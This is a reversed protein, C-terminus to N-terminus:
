KGFWALKNHLQTVSGVVILAPSVAQEAMNSLENLKGQFVRQEPRTGNEIIACSMEPDLGHTILKDMIHSSQKLGMYFVLTNNSQALSRWEIERGDKQVHGTIFQVSQAHDRHTLPIGAYATAGAAATIGPVVEYQIGYEALEELEEGGRGFIFSDGGKLRVVRKGEQAKEVLIQNIQDQPVCHFDLKKGVYIMEASAQALELIEKSVLRDYVVVEAAQIAKLAKVTLLDLDGPGAGVLSVFGSNLSSNATTM